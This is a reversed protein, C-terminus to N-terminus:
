RETIGGFGAVSETPLGFGRELVPGCSPLRRCGGRGSRTGFSRSEKAHKFGGTNEDSAMASEDTRGDGPIQLRFAVLVEDQTGAGFYVEEVGLCDFGEEGGLTGLVDKEGGGLHAADECIGGRNIENSIVEGNLVIDDVGSVAVADGFELEEAGGADIGFKGWLGQFFLIKKGTGQLGGVLPIGYGLDRSYLEAFGIALM